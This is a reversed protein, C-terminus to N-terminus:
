PCIKNKLYDLTVFKAIDDFYFTANTENHNTIYDTYNNVGSGNFEIDLRQNPGRSVVIFAIGTANHGVYDVVNLTSNTFECISTWNGSTNNGLSEGTANCAVYYLLPNGWPDKSHALSEPVSPEGTKNDTSNSPLYYLPHDTSNMMTLGMIEERATEVIKRAEKIKEKKITGFMTPLITMVVLGVIVIIVAMEVLTFGSKIKGYM